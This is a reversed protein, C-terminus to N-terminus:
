VRREADEFVLVNFYELTIDYSKGKSSGVVRCQKRTCPTGNTGDKTIEYNDIKGPFYVVEEKSFNGKMTHEGEPPLYHRSGNAEDKCWTTTSPTCYEPNDVILDYLSYVANTATRSTFESKVTQGSSAISNFTLSISRAISNSMSEITATFGNNSAIRDLMTSSFPSKATLLIGEEDYPHGCRVLVKPGYWETSGKDIDMTSYISFWDGGKGVIVFKVEGPNDCSSPIELDGLSNRVQASNALERVILQWAQRMDDRINQSEIASKTVKIESILLLGGLSALVIAGLVSSLLLEILTFGNNKMSRKIM